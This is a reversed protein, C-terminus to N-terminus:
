DTPLFTYREGAKTKIDYIYSQQKQSVSLPANAAVLPKRIPQSLLLPNNCSEETAPTLKKGNLYLPSATRIRLTGGITSAITVTQVKGKEWKMEELLFGGRCRIGKITGHEWVDPLAPLLHIAGDHSQVLMEAIGATCGFNGDIQFPPHADFLNPYTGGNQGREDTTPHLQETILKYAHNGDLLRAWLCVKWGMSWGTSHDGRAILSKKAAEFLVPSNYASIQRGPYLGWLHSVHRHHDQPNDWDEMWEQLQGWRGVQMPAMERLRQSLRAAFARDTDLIDSAAIIATWLDFILQNDLTCGAATTSKGNSGSHVNEPSNSPCVVLWNHAPEKVMIEDFFRGSERLIPYVSRLFETDGTYLYREWLHRCLWAGGSPWLGSPAKDVAGTIRWIDTNHHLVWGNAGYMIRATEKGTESVERILRFLPANLESLNTVESPWYNMELNINCTYKSDWSPFLKDNWIGQLNAPQGGPQSSCILLYRGFQFYTAVLHADNTQKFNEVRKDTTVHEYRNDGLDLSVRTLYRRYFDTHNKRAETFSHTMARVLYDKAREAPNGTIDQYNNFNTAISVYVIAEDAGEVSLVGDACAMRGGTNRATLRGQFEVKGKLGEHLSSVGSLTVCNGEESTVVVDQHPSTLQANFTIRGPRNATLRVMIVQDTFSTITERRYQVGDVEYRVLTRASDLSLERYYNTYRTHGPFAIRLDGFSQYPMGSNSKAMVKETALTQAELYKGAFVLDRVKPIYELANPNANNNPRGAWITEENLQIQETAPTGYVMAGLRGNGLPLAETWVQAPRDYWLKYEQASLRSEQASINGVSVLVFLYGFLRKKNM